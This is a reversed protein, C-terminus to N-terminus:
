EFVNKFSGYSKLAGVKKHAKFYLYHLDFIEEGMFCFLTM